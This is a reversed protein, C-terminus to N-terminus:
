LQVRGPIRDRRFSSRGSGPCHEFACNLQWHRKKKAQAIAKGLTIGTDEITHHDGTVSDGRAKIRLDFNAGKGLSTLIMDLLEIETEVDIRGSGETELVVDICTEKTERRSLQLM